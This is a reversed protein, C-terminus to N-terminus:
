GRKHLALKTRRLREKGEVPQARMHDRGHRRAETHGKAPARRCAEQAAVHALIAHLPVARRMSRSQLAFALLPWQM